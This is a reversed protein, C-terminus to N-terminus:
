SSAGRERAKLELFVTLLPPLRFRGTRNDAVIAVIAPERPDPNADMILQRYDDGFEEARHQILAAREEPSRRQWWQDLQLRRDDLEDALSPQIMWRTQSQQSLWTTGVVSVRRAMLRQVLDTPLDAHPHSMLGVQDDLSLGSSFLWGLSADDDTM